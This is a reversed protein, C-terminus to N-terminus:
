TQSPRAYTHTTQTITTRPTLENHRKYLTTNTSKNIKKKLCFVAYSIRLLSQLESTHEESRTVLHTSLTSFIAALSLAALAVTRPSQIEVQLAREAAASNGTTADTSPSSASARITSVFSLRHFRAALAPRASQPSYGMDVTNM